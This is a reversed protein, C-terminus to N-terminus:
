HRKPRGCLHQRLAVAAEALAARASPVLEYFRAFGHFLDERCRSVVPVGCEAMRCAYAEGEDHLIDFGATLVYAPPLGSLDEALLPSVRWDSRHPPAAYHDLFWEYKATTLGFREGFLGFSKAKRSADVVPYVLLQFRPQPGGDDRALLCAVTALNAGSSDGGVGVRSTDAGLSLANDHVWDLSARADSVAAPFPHEPAKRYEVSLLRVRSSASLFRCVGDITDLDGDVFGGGHFYVLLPGREAAGKPVYLRAPLAGGPGAVQVDRTESM